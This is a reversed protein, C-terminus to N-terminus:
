RVHGSDTLSSPTPSNDGDWLGLRKSFYISVLASAIFGGGICFGIAGLSFLAQAGDGELPISVLMMGLGAAIVIVGIQISWMVRSLPANQPARETRVPIPAAELFKSGADSKVYQLLEDASGFRDLIKNHVDSQSRALRNWRKQEIITRIIWALAVAILSFTAFIALGEIIDDGPNRQQTRWAYQGLYFGPDQRIEPHADLFSSLLPYDVLFSENNLLSPELFLVTALNRKYGSLLTTFQDRLEHPALETGEGAEIADDPQTEGEATTTETEPAADAVSTAPPQVDGSTEGAPTVEQALAPEVLPLMLTLLLILITRTALTM